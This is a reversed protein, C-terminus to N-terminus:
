KMSNTDNDNKKNMASTLSLCLISFPAGLVYYLIGELPAGAHVSVAQNSPFNLFLYIIFYPTFFTIPLSYRLKVKRLSWSFIISVVVGIFITLYVKM